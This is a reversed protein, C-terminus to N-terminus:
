GRYAQQFLSETNDSMPHAVRVLGDDAFGDNSQLTITRLACGIVTWMLCWLGWGKM